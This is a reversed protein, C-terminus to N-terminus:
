LMHKGVLQSDEAIQRLIAEPAKSTKKILNAKILQEKLKDLPMEKLRRQMKKARTMRKHMSSVGLVFKRTKKIPKQNAVERKPHLKVKKSQIKKLEVRIQKGGQMQQPQQPQMQHPQQPQMQQPQQPQMQQPQQPKLFSTLAPAPLPFPATPPPVPMLANGGAVTGMKTITANKFSELPMSPMSPMSPVSDSDGGKVKRKRTKKGGSLDAVAGGTIRVAKYEAM